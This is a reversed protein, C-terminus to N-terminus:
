ITNRTVIEVGGTLWNVRIEYGYGVRSLAITGGCSMGSALFVIAVGSRRHQCSAASILTVSVDDPIRVIQGTSDSQLIRHRADVVTAVDSRRRVSANHDAKLLSAIELAYSELQPRTTARPIAPLLIAALMAVIAVVCIV